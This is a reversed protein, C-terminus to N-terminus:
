FQYGLLVNFNYTGTPEDNENPLVFGIGGGFQLRLANSLALQYGTTLGVSGRTSSDELQIAGTIKVKFIRLAPAFGVYFGDGAAHPYFRFEPQITIISARGEVTITGDSASSKKTNYAFGFGLTTRRKLQHELSLAGGWYSESNGESFLGEMNGGLKFINFQGQAAASYVSLLALTLTLIKIPKM